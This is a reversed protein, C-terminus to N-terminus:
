KILNSFRRKPKHVLFKEYLKSYYEMLQKMYTIKNSLLTPMLVTEAYHQADARNDFVEHSLWGYKLHGTAPHRNNAHIGARFVFRQNPDFVEEFRALYIIYNCHTTPVVIYKDVLNSM